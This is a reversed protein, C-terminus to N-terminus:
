FNPLVNSHHNINDLHRSRSGGLLCVEPCTQSSVGLKPLSLQSSGTHMLYLITLMVNSNRHRKEHM